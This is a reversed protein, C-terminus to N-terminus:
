RCINSYFYMTSEHETNKGTRELSSPGVFDRISCSRVQSVAMRHKAGKMHSKLAVEGMSALGFDKKCLKCCARNVNKTDPLLWSYYADVDQWAPNFKCKGPM